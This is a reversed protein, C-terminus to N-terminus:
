TWTWIWTGHGLGPEVDGELDLNWTWTGGHGPRPGQGQRPIKKTGTRSTSPRAREFTKKDVAKALKAKVLEVLSNM